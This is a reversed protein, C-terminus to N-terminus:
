RKIAFEVEDEELVICLTEIVSVMLANAVIM